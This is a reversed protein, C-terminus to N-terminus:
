WDEKPLSLMQMRDLAPDVKAEIRSYLEDLLATREEPRRRDLFEAIARAYLKSRSVGLKRAASEAKKFLPDPLSIATKM